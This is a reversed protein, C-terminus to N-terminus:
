NMKRYYSFTLRDVVFVGIIFEWVVTATDLGEGLVIVGDSLLNDGHNTEWSTTAEGTVLTLVVSVVIIRLDTIM